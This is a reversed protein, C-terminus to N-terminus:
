RSIAISPAQPGHDVAAVLAAELLDAQAKTPLDGRLMLWIMEPFRIGGILDQIPYGRVNIKGPEIDIIETSWWSSADQLLQESNQASQRGGEGAGKENGGKENNM